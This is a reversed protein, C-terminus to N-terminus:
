DSQASELIFSDINQHQNLRTIESQVMTLNKQFIDVSKSPVIKVKDSVKLLSALKLGFEYRSYSHSGVLHIIAPANSISNILIISIDIVLSLPTPTFYVDDFLDLEQGSKFAALLWDFFRSGRGMVASTRIITYSVPSDLLYKEADYNSKGYNTGPNPLDQDTYHGTVGDFVYDTSFFFLHTDLKYEEIIDVIDITPRTNIRYAYDYDEECRKLDKSGAILFLFEPKLTLMYKKLLEKDCIDLYELDGSINHNYFTGKVDYDPYSKKLEPMLASGLFGSAGIVSIVPKM